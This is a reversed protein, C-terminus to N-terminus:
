NIEAFRATTEIIRRCIDKKILVALGEESICTNGNGHAM